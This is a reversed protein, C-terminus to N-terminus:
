KTPELVGRQTKTVSFQRSLKEQNVCAKQLTEIFDTHTHTYTAADLGGCGGTTREAVDEKVEQWGVALDVYPIIKMEQLCHIHTYRIREESDVKESTTCVNLYSKHATGQLVERM